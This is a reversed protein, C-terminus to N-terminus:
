LLKIGWMGVLSFSWFVFFRMWGLTGLFKQVFPFLFILTFGILALSVFLVGIWRIGKSTQEPFEALSIVRERYRSWTSALLLLSLLGMLALLTVLGRWSASASLDVGLKAANELIQSMALFALLGTLLFIFRWFTLRSPEIIKM